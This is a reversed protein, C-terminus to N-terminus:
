AHLTEHLQRIVTRPLGCYLDIRIASAVVVDRQCDEAVDGKVRDCNGLELGVAIDHRTPPPAYGAAGENM